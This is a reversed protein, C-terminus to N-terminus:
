PERSRGLRGLGRVRSLIRSIPMFTLTSFLLLTRVILLLLAALFVCIAGYALWTGWITGSEM